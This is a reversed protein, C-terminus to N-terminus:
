SPAVPIAHHCLRSFSTSRTVSWSSTKNNKQAFQDSSAERMVHICTGASLLGDRRCEAGVTYQSRGGFDHGRCSRKLTANIVAKRSPRKEYNSSSTLLLRQVAQDM